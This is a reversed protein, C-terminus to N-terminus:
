SGVRKLMATIKARARALGTFVSQRVFGTPAQQSHGQDLRQIYPVNNSIFTKAVRGTAIAVEGVAQAAGASGPEVARYPAGAAPIWNSRAHGTDVPTRHKLEGLVELTAVAVAKGAVQEVQDSIARYQEDLPKAM